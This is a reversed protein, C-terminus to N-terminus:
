EAKVQPPTFDAVTAGPVFTVSESVGTPSSTTVRVVVGMVSVQRVSTATIVRGDAYTHVNVTKWIPNEVSIPLAKEAKGKSLTEVAKAVFAPVPEKVQVKIKPMPKAVPKATGKSPKIAKKEEKKM